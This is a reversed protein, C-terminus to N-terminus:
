ELVLDIDDHEQIIEVLWDFVTPGQGREALALQNRVHLISSPHCRQLRAQLQRVTELHGLEHRSINSNRWVLTFRDEPTGFGGSLVDNFADLNHGWDAGPILSRSVEEYFQELTEFRSGDITRTPKM